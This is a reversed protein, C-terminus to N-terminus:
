PRLLFLRLVVLQDAEGLPQGSNALRHGRVQRALLQAALPRARERELEDVEAPKSDSRIPVHLLVAREADRCQVLVVDANAATAHREPIAALVADPHMRGEDVGLEGVRHPREDLEFAPPPQEAISRVVLDEAERPPLQVFVDLLVHALLERGLVEAGPAPREDRGDGKCLSARRFRLRFGLAGDRGDHTQDALLESVSRGDRARRVDTWGDDLLIPVTSRDIVKTWAM